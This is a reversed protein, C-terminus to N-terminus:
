EMRFVIHRTYSLHDLTGHHCHFLSFSGFCLPVHLSESNLHLFRSLEAIIGIRFQMMVHLMKNRFRSYFLQFLDLFGNCCGCSSRSLGSHIRDLNVSVTQQTGQARGNQIVSGIFVSTYKLVTNAICQFHNRCDFFRCRRQHHFILEREDCDVRISTVTSFASKILRFTNFKCLSQFCCSHIHDLDSLCIMGSIHAIGNRRHSGNWIVPGKRNCLFHFFHYRNRNCRYSSYYIHFISLLNKCIAFCIHDAVSSRQETVRINRNLNLLIFRDTFTQVTILSAYIRDLVATINGTYKIRFISVLCGNENFRCFLLLMNHNDSCTNGSQFRCTHCCNASMLYVNILFRIMDSALDMKCRYRRSLPLDQTRNFVKLLNQRFKSYRNMQIRFTGFFDHIICISHDHCDTCM